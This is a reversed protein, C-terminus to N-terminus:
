QPNQMSASVMDIMLEGCDQAIKARALSHLRTVESWEISEPFIPRSFTVTIHSPTFLLTDGRMFHRTGQIAIPCLPTQTDVAVKFAGLKFPRLGTAYTFTGEPYILVSNGEKLSESIHGTDSINKSFDIRDVTLFGFKRVADRVIPWDRLEKKGVIAVNNPLIAYLIVSDVYSAHNAVFVMPSFQDINEKGVVKLPCGSLWLFLRFFARSSSRAFNKPFILVCIWALLVCLSGITLIYGSYIYKGIKSLANYISVGLGKIFLKSMQLWVPLGSRVLKGQMYLNKTASRQLKGSSTKPISRPPVLCVQDPPMGLVVSIKEIIDSILQERVKTSSESTEAVVILKETGWQPDEVGFAAVCGKRIGPIQSTIEEIEQPYINRGAKIIVDKKRGTIYVEGEATYAFDGSDWWGDHYASKTAEANRYYGSMASPGTFQLTGVQRDGLEQDREDVIRIDHDPIPSGCCVFELSDKEESKAPIAKGETEFSEREITDILPKRNLPPFALGVSCEALGYVPFMAEPKFGYPAFKEIFREITKPNVAEAGNFALRWSSLDLGQINEDRIKRVCLEYAFNPGASLTGRHYHIAWLWREPRTLFTLPSMLALPFGYYLSSFWAGILGMDHYLPLWSVGVDKASVNMAKGVSRINSLLNYHSLLVGKPDSTSGSTYQILAPDEGAFHLHPLRHGLSLLDSVTLTSKLSPIFIKLLKGLSGAETFTILIRVEANKLIRSERVAYEELMDARVPPYIPVAVGGALLIGFFAYFFDVSTPLMIAVTERPKLGMEVLGQAVKKANEFLDNYTIIQEEGEENALYIHPRNAHQSVHRTLVEVLNSASSPDLIAEPLATVFERHKARVKTKGDSGLGIAIDRVTIANAMLKEPLAINFEKELRLFLEVRGLSDIGLDQELSSDLSVRSATHESKVESVFQKIIKLLDAETSASSM